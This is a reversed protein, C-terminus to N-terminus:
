PSRMARALAREVGRKTFPKELIADPAEGASVARVSSDTIATLLVAPLHHGRSRLRKLADLGSLRPMLFDLILADPREREARAVAEEGNEAEVVEHGLDALLDRLMARILRDDDAILVKM